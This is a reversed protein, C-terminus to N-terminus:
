APKEEKGTAAVPKYRLFCVGNAMARSEILELRADGGQFLRLGDGRVTPYSLVRVEDILGAALLSVALQNSGFVVIDREVKAKLARVEAITDSLVTTGSWSASQITQSAVYKPMDNIRDAYANSGKREPWASAFGEYTVRGLLLADAAFLEDRKLDSITDTWYPFSWKHPSDIVGDLTVFQSVIVKGM